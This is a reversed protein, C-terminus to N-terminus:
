NGYKITEVLNEKSLPAVFKFVKKDKNHDNKQLSELKWSYMTPDMPLEYIRLCDKFFNFYYVPLTEPDINRTDLHQRIGEVKNFEVYAGGWKDIQSSTYQTRVKIEVLSETSGSLMWNDFPAYKYMPEQHLYIQQMKKTSSFWSMAEQERMAKQEFSQEKNM